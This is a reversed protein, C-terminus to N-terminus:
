PQRTPSPPPLGQTGAFRGLMTRVASRVKYSLPPDRFQRICGELIVNGDAVSMKDISDIIWFSRDGYEGVKTPRVAAKIFFSLVEAHMHRTLFRIGSNDPWLHIAELAPYGVLGVCLPDADGYMADDETLEAVLKEYAPRIHGMFDTWNGVIKYREYECNNLLKFKWDDFSAVAPSVAVDNIFFKVYAGAQLPQLSAM